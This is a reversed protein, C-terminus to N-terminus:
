NRPDIIIEPRRKAHSTSEDTQTPDPKEAPEPKTKSDAEQTNPKATSTVTTPPDNEVTPM